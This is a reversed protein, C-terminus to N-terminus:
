SGQRIPFHIIPGDSQHYKRQKSFLNLKNNTEAAPRSRFIGRLLKAVGAVFDKLNERAFNAVYNAVWFMRGARFADIQGEYQEPWPSLSEYGQRYANLYPEYEGPSVDLMLDQLAMAIDQVPYGWITDEFDFPLLRGHYIKINEHHLDNHIVRLGTPDDYLDMFAKNVWSWTQQFIALNRPTMTDRSSDDFLTIPEDRAFVNDMKRQTFSKPPKYAASFAHLRAFLEGMKFLNAENLQDALLKGPLWSMVLCEREQPVGPIQTNTLYHGDRTALPDPAEIESNKNLAQLWAIEAHRDTTTRWRPTCVRLAYSQRDTTRVRFNTNTYAGILQLNSVQLDYHTLANLALKRLRRAQGLKSLKEFPVM